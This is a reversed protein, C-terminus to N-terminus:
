IMTEILLRIFKFVFYKSFTSKYWHLHDECCVAKPLPCCGYSGDTMKCCTNGNPCFSCGDPCVVSYDSWGSKEVEKEDVDQKTEQEKAPEEVKPKFAPIKKSWAIFENQKNCRGDKVDCVYGM